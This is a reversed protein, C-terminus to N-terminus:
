MNLIKALAEKGSMGVTVGHEKAKSTADVIKAALLNDPTKLPSQPTGRAVAVVASFADMVKIDIAGCAVLGKEAVIIVIQGGKWEMSLGIASGAETTVPQTIIKSM